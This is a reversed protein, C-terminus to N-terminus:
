IRVLITDLKENSKATVHDVRDAWGGVSRPKADLSLLLGRGSRMLWSVRTQGGQTTLDLDIMRPGLGPYQVDLGSIMGSVFRNAEPLRLLEIFMDRVAAINEDQSLIALVSQARTNRLVRAAVPHREPHYTDLLGDPAWGRVTAALKWGLNFADQIGLNVGQGGIPLHIHAADGAFFVRRERYHEVQRAADSFRSAERVQGLDRQNGYVTRLAESVEEATVPEERGQGKGSLKGFMLRYLDGEIPALIGFYGGARCISLSPSTPSSLPYGARHHVAQFRGRGITRGDAVVLGIL